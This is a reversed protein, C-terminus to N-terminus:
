AFALQHTITIKDSKVRNLSRWEPRLNSFHSALMQQDKRKLNFAALPIIHDIEWVAGHNEWSMGKKFQNEIHAKAQHITCGLLESTRLNKKANIKKYIRSIQNRLKIRILYISDKKQTLKHHRHRAYEVAKKKSQAHNLYYRVMEYSSISNNMRAITIESCKDWYTDVVGDWNEGWWQQGLIEQSKGKRIATSKAAQSKSLTPLANEKRFQCITATNKNVLDGSMKGAMGILAHCKGCQQWEPRSRGSPKGKKDSGIQIASCKLSCYKRGSKPKFELGCVPCPTPQLRSWKRRHTPLGAFLGIQCSGTTTTQM